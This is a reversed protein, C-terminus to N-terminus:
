QIVEADDKWDWFFSLYQPLEPDLSCATGYNLSKGRIIDIFNELPCSEGPGNSCDGIPVVSDNIILRIFVEGSNGCKLKELIITAGMPTLDGKVWPHNEEIINVSLPSKGDFIGLASLFFNIHSDHTFSIYIPLDQTDNELLTLTANSYVSGISASLPNGPGNKYFYYLARTYGNFIHDNESFISCFVRSGVATVEFACLEILHKIDDLSLNINPTYKELLELTHTFHSQFFLGDQFTSSNYLRCSRDPTLSNAGQSESEPIVVIKLEKMNLGKSFFTATEIDRHSASTFIPFVGNITEFLYNYRHRFNVGRQFSHTQGNYPGSNTLEEYQNKPDTIFYRYSNLFSLPGTSNSDRLKELTKEFQIGRNTTPYRESHRGLFHVQSISCTEPTESDLGFSPFKLYPGNGGLHQFLNFTSDFSDIENYLKPANFTSYIWVFLM